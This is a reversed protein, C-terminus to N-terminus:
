TTHESDPEPSSHLSSPLSDLLGPWVVHGDEIMPRGDIRLTGPGGPADVRLDKVIDWHLTSTNVGGCQPYARGLAIHVTGLIKEDIFLDGTWAQVTSSLGIGLEGVRHSGDDTDILATALDAGQDARIEVVHGRHFRLYLNEFVAGAFITVGTFTIHGEVQDDVPATAVEGDPLNAEGAFLAARRGAVGLRLDTDSATITVTSAHDLAETLPQWRKKAAEWDDLAGAFFEDTLTAPDAGIEVAWEATPIRVVAWRTGQWRLGSIVGKAKRQAALRAPLDTPLDNSDTTPWVMSRFSVHVNSWKMAAQEIPAPEAIREPTSFQLEATDALEPQYVTQVTAGRRISARILADAAPLASADNVFISVRADGDVELRDAIHDALLQWRPDASPIHDNM